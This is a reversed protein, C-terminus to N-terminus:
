EEEEIQTQAKKAIMLADFELAKKHLWEAVLADVSKDAMACAEFAARTASSCVIDLEPGFVTLTATVLPVSGDCHIAVRSVCEIEEGGPGYVHTGVITGDSVIRIPKEVPNM